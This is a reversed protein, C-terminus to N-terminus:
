VRCMVERRTVGLAVVRLVRPVAHMREEGRRFGGSKSSLSQM